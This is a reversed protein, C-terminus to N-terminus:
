PREPATKAPNAREASAAAEVKPQSCNKGSGSCGPAIKAPDLSSCYKASRSCGPAIKAPDPVAPLLKQRIQFLRSCNKGPAIKPPDLRSCYKGSRSCGPAIKAPDLVSREVKPGSCNKGSRSCGPAINPPDLVVPLVPAAPPATGQRLSVGPTQQACRSPAYSYQPLRKTSFTYSLYM